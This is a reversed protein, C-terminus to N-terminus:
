PRKLPHIDRNRNNIGGLKRECPKKKGGCGLSSAFAFIDSEPARLGLKAATASYDNLLTDSDSTQFLADDVIDRVPRTM